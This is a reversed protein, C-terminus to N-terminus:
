RSRAPMPPYASTTPAIQNEVARSMMAMKTTACTLAHAASSASPRSSVASAAPADRGRMTTSRMATSSMPAPM